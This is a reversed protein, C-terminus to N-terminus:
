VLEMAIAGNGVVIIRSAGQLQQAFEEISQTDRLTVVREHDALVQWWVHLM